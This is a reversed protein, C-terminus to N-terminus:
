LIILVATLFGASAAAGTVADTYVDKDPLALTCGMYMILGLAMYEMHCIACIKGLVILVVSLAIVAMYNIGMFDSVIGSIVGAIVFAIVVAYAASSDAYRIAMLSGYAIFVGGVAGKIIDALIKKDDKM